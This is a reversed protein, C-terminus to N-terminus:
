MQRPYNRRLDSDGPVPGRRRRLSEPLGSYSAEIKFTPTQTQAHGLPTSTALFLAAVGLALAAYLFLSAASRPRPTM